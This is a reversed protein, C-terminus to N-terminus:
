KAAPSQPSGVVFLFGTLTGTTAGSSEGGAYTVGTVLFLRGGEQMAKSFALVQDPTGTLAISIAISFTTGPSKAAPTAGTAAGETPAPTPNSTPTETPAPAASGGTDADGYPQVDASTISTVAVGTSGALNYVEDYFDVTDPTSPISQQKSALDARLSDISSATTRLSALSARQADNQSRVQQEQTHATDAATMNPSILLLWGLAVVAVMAIVIGIKVLRTNTM